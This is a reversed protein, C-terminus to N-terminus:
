KNFRARTLIEPLIKLVHDLDSKQTNPNLTFRVASAARAEGGGLAEIVYSADKTQTSCASGSSALVGKADLSLVVYESDAGAFSVNANNAVRETVSGNLTAGEIKLLKKIFYDRLKTLRASEKERKKVSLKLAEAFQTIAPVNETGSRLGREQGGGYIIPELVVGRKVYLVGVGKTNSIKASNLTLLDIGLRAVNLDLYQPAQCADIHFLCRTDGSDSVRHQVRIIKAIERIPQIVGIENNVYSISVLLTEPRLAKKFEALDILGDPKVGLYTVEFGARELARCPELVSAHETVLTIIHSKKSSKIARAVGLLALNNAETGSATFIIEDAHAALVRAVSERADALKAAAAVGASHISSPNAGGAAADLNIIRM